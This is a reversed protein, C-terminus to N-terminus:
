NGYPASFFYFMYLFPTFVKGRLGMESGQRDTDSGGPAKNGRKNGRKNSGPIGPSLPIWKQQIRQLKSQTCVQYFHLKCEYLSFVTFYEPTLGSLFSVITTLCVWLCSIRKQQKMFTTMLQLCSINKTYNASLLWRSTCFIAGEKYQKSQQINSILYVCTITNVPTDQALFVTCWWFWTVQNASFRTCTM